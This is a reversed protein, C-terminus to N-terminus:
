KGFTWLLKDMMRNESIKDLNQLKNEFEKNIIKTLPNTFTICSEIVSLNQERYVKLNKEYTGYKNNKQKLTNRALTDMPIIEWPNNLFLIKSAMSTMVKGRTLNSQALNEAFLDVNNPQKGNVFNYTEEL